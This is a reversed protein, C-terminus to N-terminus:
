ACPTTGQPQELPNGRWDLADDLPVNTVSKFRSAYRSLDWAAMSSNDLMYSSFRILLWKGHAKHYTGIEVNGIEVVCGFEDSLALAKQVIKSGADTHRSANRDLQIGVAAWYSLGLKLKVKSM